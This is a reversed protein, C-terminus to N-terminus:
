LGIGRLEGVLLAIMALIALALTGAVVGDWDIRRM